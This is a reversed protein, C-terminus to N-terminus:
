MRLPGIEPPRDVVPADLTSRLNESGQKLSVAQHLIHTVLAVTPVVGHGLREEVQEFVLQDVMDLPLIVHIGIVVQKLVQLDEVIPFSQM